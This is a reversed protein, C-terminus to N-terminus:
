FKTFNFNLFSLFYLITLFNIMYHHQVLVEFINQKFYNLLKLGIALNQFYHKQFRKLAFRLLRGFILKVIQLSHFDGFIIHFSQIKQNLNDHTLFLFLFFYIFFITIPVLKKLFSVVVLSLKMLNIQCILFNSNQILNVKIM